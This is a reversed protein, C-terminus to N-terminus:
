LAGENGDKVIELARGVTERDRQFTMREAAVDAPVWEADFAEWETQTGLVREEGTARAIYWWVIKIGRGMASLDRVIVAIPETIGQVVAVADPGNVGPAPARTPMRVPLLACPYGTEEFTERVAAAEISEGCDKRGKPLMWEDKNRDHLVCIEIGQSDNRRFLVCGASVVFESSFYQTSPYVHSTM